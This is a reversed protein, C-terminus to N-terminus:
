GGHLAQVGRTFLYPLLHEVQIYKTFLRICVLLAVMGNNQNAILSTDLNVHDSYRFIRKRMKVHGSGVEHHTIICLYNLEQM